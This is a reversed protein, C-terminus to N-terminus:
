GHITHETAPVFSKAAPNPGIRHWRKTVLFNEDDIVAGGKPRGLDDLGLQSAQELLRRKGDAM